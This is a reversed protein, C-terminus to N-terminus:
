CLGCTRKCATKVYGASVVSSLADYYLDAPKAGEERLSDRVGTRCMRTSKYSACVEADMSDSCKSDQENKEAYGVFAESRKTIASISAVFGLLLFCGIVLKAFAKYSSTVRTSARM